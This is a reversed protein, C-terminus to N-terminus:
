RRARKKARKAAKTKRAPAAKAKRATATKRRTAPKRAAPKKAPRSRLQKSAIEAGKVLAELKAWVIAPDLEDSAAFTAFGCDTGAIVNERGAFNAFKVIREAVLDPHEVLVSCHTVVGPILITDAPKKADRWVAWEHEHRPNSAEFSFAGAKIKLIIDLIDKAEMDHVRPGMNISYCTHYRIKEPPIGRLAYNLAEVQMSAWKRVENMSLNPEMMYYTILRPDDIQLIFGADVIAKYEEHMADCIATRYEEDTNYFRNLHWSEINSPSISPVFAEKSGTAGIASKLADLDAELMAHGKYSIPGTAGFLPQRRSFMSQNRYFDPFAIGDRSKDWNPTRNGELQNMGALRERVYTIFSPKSYEGDDVIDIGIDAQKRVVEHVASKVRASDAAADRTPDRSMVIDRIEDSRPLSGAHTTLIRSASRLM